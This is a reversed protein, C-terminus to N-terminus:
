CCVVLSLQMNQQLLMMDRGFSNVGSVSEAKRNNDKGGVFCMERERNYAVMSM